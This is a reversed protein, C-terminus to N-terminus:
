SVGAAGILRFVGIAIAVLGIGRAVRAGDPALREASIAATVLAMARLDMVGVTLVTATLGACSISCHIGLRLGRRWSAAADWRMLSGAALRQRCRTLHHAKWTTLQIAGAILVVVGVMYPAALDLAPLAVRAAALATVITFVTMGVIAWVVFYGMGVLLTMGRPRRVVMRDVAWQHQWLTPALSPPMMAMMMVTWMATFSLMAGPWPQGGMGGLEPSMPMGLGGHTSMAAGAHTAMASGDPTSMGEMGSMSMSWKVTLTWSGALLLATGAALARRSERACDM